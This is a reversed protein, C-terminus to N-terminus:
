RIFENDLFSEQRSDHKKVYDLLAQETPDKSWRAEAARKKVERMTNTELETVRDELSYTRRHLKWTTLLGGAM